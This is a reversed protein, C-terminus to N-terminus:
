NQSMMQREYFDFPTLELALLSGEKEQAFSKKICNRSSKYGKTYVFILVDFIMNFTLFVMVFIIKIFVICQKDSECVYENINKTTFDDNYLM